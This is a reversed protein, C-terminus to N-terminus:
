KHTHTHTKNKTKTKTKTKKLNEIERKAAQTLVTEGDSEVRHEFKRLLIEKSPTCKARITGLDFPDRFVLKLDEKLRRRLEKIM